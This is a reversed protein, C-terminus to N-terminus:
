EEDVEEYQSLQRHWGLALGARRTMNREEFAQALQAPQLNLNQLLIDALLGVPLDESVEIGQPEHVGIAEILHPALRQNTETNGPEDSLVQANVKRYLRDSPIEEISVRGLGLLWILSREDELKKYHVIEGLGGIPFVPPTGPLEHSHESSVSAMVLRGARDMLDDVMQRYRPEFIHLPIVAGPFLYFDPLPFMPINALSTQNTTGM